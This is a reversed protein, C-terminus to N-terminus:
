STKDRVYKGDIKKWERCWNIRMKALIAEELDIGCRDCYAMLAIAVDACESSVSAAGKCTADIHEQALEECEEGIKEMIASVLEDTTEGFKERHWAGVESQILKM